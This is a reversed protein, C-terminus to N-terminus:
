QLLLAHRHVREDGAVVHIESPLVPLLQLSRAAVKDGMAGDELHVLSELLALCDELEGLHLLCCAAMHLGALQQLQEQSLPDPRHSSAASKDPRLADALPGLVRVQLLGRHQLTALCRRHEGSLLFSQQLDIPWTQYSRSNIYLLVSTITAPSASSSLQLM